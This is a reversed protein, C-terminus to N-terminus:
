DDLDGVSPHVLDDIECGANRAELAAMDVALRFAAMDAESHRPRIGANEDEANEITANNRARKADQVARRLAACDM